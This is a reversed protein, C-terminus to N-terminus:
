EGSARAPPEEAPDAEGAEPVSRVPSTDGALEDVKLALARATRAVSRFEQLNQGLRALSERTEQIVQAVEARDAALRGEEAVEHLWDLNCRMSALPNSMDHAVGAARSGAAALKEVEAQRKESRELAEIARAREEALAIEARRIKRSSVAGLVAVVGSAVARLAFFAADEVGKGMALTIAVATVVTAASAFALLRVADPVLAYFFLPATILYANAMGQPGGNLSLVGLSALSVVFCAGAVWETRRADSFLLARSAGLLAAVWVMRAGLVIVLNPAGRLADAVAFLFLLGAVVLAMRSRVRASSEIPLQAESMRTM